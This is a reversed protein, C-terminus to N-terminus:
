EEQKTSHLCGWQVYVGDGSAALGAAQTSMHDKHTLLLGRGLTLTTLKFALSM